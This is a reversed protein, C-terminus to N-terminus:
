GLSERHNYLYSITGWQRDDRLVSLRKCNIIDVGNWSLDLMIIVNLKMSDSDSIDVTIPIFVIPNQSQSVLVCNRHELNRSIVLLM